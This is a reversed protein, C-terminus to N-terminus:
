GGNPPAHEISQAIALPARWSKREWPKDTLHFQIFHIVTRLQQPTYRRLLSETLNWVFSDPVTDASGPDRLSEIMFAPTFYIQADEDMMSFAGDQSKLYKADCTWWDRHHFHARVEPYDGIVSDSTILLGRPFTNRGFADQIGSILEEKKM